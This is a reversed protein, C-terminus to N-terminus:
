INTVSPKLEFTRKIGASCYGSENTKESKRRYLKKKDIM